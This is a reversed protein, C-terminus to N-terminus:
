LNRWYPINLIQHIYVRLPTSVSQTGYLLAFLLVVFALTTSLAAFEVIIILTITMVSVCCAFDIM